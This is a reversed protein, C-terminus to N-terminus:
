SIGNDSLKEVVTQSLVTKGCAPLGIIRLIQTKIGKNIRRRIQFVLQDVIENKTFVPLKYYEEDKRRM